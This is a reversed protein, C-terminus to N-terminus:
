KGRKTGYKSRGKKGKLLVKNIIQAVLVSQYVPDPDIKRVESPARRM